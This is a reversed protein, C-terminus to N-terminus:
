ILSLCLPLIRTWEEPQKTCMSKVNEKPANGPFTIATSLAGKLNVLYYIAIIPPIPEVPNLKKLYSRDFPKCIRM